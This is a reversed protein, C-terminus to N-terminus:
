CALMHDDNTMRPGPAWFNVGFIGGLANKSCLEAGEGTPLVKARKKTLCKDAVIAAHRALM